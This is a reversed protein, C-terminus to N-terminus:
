NKSNNVNRGLYLLSYLHMEREVEENREIVVAFSTILQYHEINKVVTYVSLLYLYYYIGRLRTFLHWMMRM